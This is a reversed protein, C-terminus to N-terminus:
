RLKLMAVGVPSPTVVGSVNERCRREVVTRSSAAHDLSQTRGGKAEPPRRSDIVVHLESLYDALRHGGHLVFAQVAPPQQDHLRQRLPSASPSGSSAM